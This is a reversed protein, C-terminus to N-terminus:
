DHRESLFGCFAHFNLCTLLSAIRVRQSSLARVVATLIAGDCVHARRCISHMHAESRYLLNHAITGVANQAQGTIRGVLIDIPHCIASFIVSEKENEPTM